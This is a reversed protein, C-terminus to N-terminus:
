ELSEVEARHPVIAGLGCVDDKFRHLQRHDIPDVVGWEAFVARGVFEEGGVVDGLPARQDVFIRDTETRALPEVTAQDIRAGCRGTRKSRVVFQRFRRSVEIHDVVLPVRDRHRLTQAVAEAAAHHGALGSQHQVVEVVPEVAVWGARVHDAGALRDLHAHGWDAIVWPSPESKPTIPVGPENPM